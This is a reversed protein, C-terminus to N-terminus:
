CPLQLFNGHSRRFSGSQRGFHVEFCARQVFLGTCCLILARATCLTAIGTVRWGERAQEASPHMCHWASIPQSLIRPGFRGRFRGCEGCRWAIAGGERVLRTRAVGHGPIHRRCAPPVRDRGRLPVPRISDLGSLLPKAALAADHLKAFGGPMRRKCKSPCAQADACHLLGGCPVMFHQCSDDPGCPTSFHRDKSLAQVPDLDVCPQLRSSSGKLAYGAISRSNM